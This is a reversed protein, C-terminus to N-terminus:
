FPASLKQKFIILKLFMFFLGEAQIDRTKRKTLFSEKISLCNIKCESRINNNENRMLIKCLKVIIQVLLSFMVCNIQAIIQTELFIDGIM